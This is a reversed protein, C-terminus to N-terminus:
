GEAAQRIEVGARVAWKAFAGSMERRVHPAWRNATKSWWGAPTVEQAVWTWGFRDSGKAFVPHRWVGNNFAKALVRQDPPLQNTTTVIRVGANRGSQRYEVRIGRSITARLGARKTATARARDVKRQTAETYPGMGATKATRSKGFAYAARAARAAGFGPTDKVDTDLIAQRLANRVPVATARLHKGMAKNLAKDQDRLARAVVVLDAGEVAAKM